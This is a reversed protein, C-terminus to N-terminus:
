LYYKYESFTSLNIKLLSKDRKKFDILKLVGNDLIKYEKNM